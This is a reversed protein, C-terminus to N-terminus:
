HKPRGETPASRASAQAIRAALAEAAERMDCEYHKRRRWYYWDPVLPAAARVRYSEDQIARCESLLVPEGDGLRDLLEDIRQELHEREDGYKRHADALEIADLVAPLVPLLVAVLYTDLDAHRTLAVVVTVTLWLGVGALLIARYERHLRRTWVASSRQAVLVDAPSRLQAADSFWSLDASHRQRRALEAIEEEAPPRSLAPNVPLAFVGTEFLEQIAVASRLARREYQIGIMRGILVWGGALAGLLHDVDPTLYIVFPAALALGIGGLLRFAYWRKANSYARRFAKQLTLTRPQRQREALTAM